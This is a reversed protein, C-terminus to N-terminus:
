NNRRVIFGDSRKTLVKEEERKQKFLLIKFNGEPYFLTLQSDEVEVKEVKAEKIDNLAQSLSIKEEGSKGARWAVFLNLGIWAFLLWVLLNKLNFKLKLEIKKAPKKVPNKIIPTKKKM